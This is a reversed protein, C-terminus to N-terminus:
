HRFVHVDRGIIYRKYFCLCFSLIFMNMVMNHFCILYIMVINEYTSMEGCYFCHRSLRNSAAGQPEGTQKASPHAQRLHPLPTKHYDLKLLLSIHLHIILPTENKTPKISIIFTYLYEINKKIGHFLYFEM